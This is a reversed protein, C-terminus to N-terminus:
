ELAVKNRRENAPRWGHEMTLLGGLYVILPPREQFLFFAIAVCFFPSTEPHPLVCFASVSSASM